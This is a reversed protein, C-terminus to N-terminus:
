KSSAARVSPHLAVPVKKRTARGMARGARATPMLRANSSVSLSMPADSNRPTCVNVTVTYVVHIERESKDEAACIAQM